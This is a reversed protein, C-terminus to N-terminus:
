PAKAFRESCHVDAHDPNPQEIAIYRFADGDDDRVRRVQGVRAPVAAGADVGGVADDALLTVKGVARFRSCGSDDTEEASVQAAEHCAWTGTRSAIELV